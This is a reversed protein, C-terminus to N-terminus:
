SSTVGPPLCIWQAFEQFTGFSDPGAKRPSSAHAWLLSPIFEGDWLPDPGTEKGETFHSSLRFEWRSLRNLIWNEEDQCFLCRQSEIFKPLESNHQHSCARSYLMGRDVPDIDIKFVHLCSYRGARITLLLQVCTHCLCFVPMRTCTLVCHSGSGSMLQTDRPSVDRKGM